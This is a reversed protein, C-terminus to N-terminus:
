KQSDEIISDAAIMGFTSAITLGNGVVNGFCGHGSVAGAAYLGSLISGDTRIVHASSDTKVGGYTSQMAPKIKAAYYPPTDFVDKVTAGFDNEINGEGVDQWKEMTKIFNNKAEGDFGMDSALEEWTLGSAFYGLKNYEQVLKKEDMTKQDFVSWAEQNPLSLEAESKEPIISDTENIFRNGDNDVLVSVYSITFLSVVAGNEAVHCANNAKFADMNWLEAGIEKAAIIGDGTASPAGSRPLSTYNGAGAYDRLLEDNRAFGGTALLVSNARVQYDGAPSSVMVGVVKEDEVIISKLSTNVRYDVGLLDMQESLCKIMHPGPSSGDSTAYAFEDFRTFPVGISLLYDVCEGTRLSYATLSEIDVPLGSEKTIDLKTNLYDQESCGTLGAKYVPYGGGGYLETSAFMTDGGGLFGQKEVLLVDFGAQALRAAANMGASGSGVVVVEVEHSQPLEEEPYLAEVYFDDSASAEKLSEKAANIVAISTLTAGTVTDVEATQYRIIDSTVKEIAGDSIVATDQNEAVKAALICGKDFYFEIGIEGGRGISSASYTGSILSENEKKSDQQAPNGCGVLMAGSGGLAVATAGKVFSRRSLKEHFCKKNVTM